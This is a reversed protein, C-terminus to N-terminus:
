LEEWGLVEIKKSSIMKLSFETLCEMLTESNLREIQTLIYEALYQFYPDILHLYDCTM